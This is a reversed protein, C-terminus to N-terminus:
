ATAPVANSRATAAPAPPIAFAAGVSALAVRISVWRLGAGGGDSSGLSVNCTNLFGSRGSRGGAGGSGGRLGEYDDATQGAIGNRCDSSAGAGGAGGGGGFSSRAGGAGAGGAARGANGRDGERGDEGAEGPRGAQGRGGVLTSDTVLVQVVEHARVGFSSGAMAEADPELSGDPFSGGEVTVQDLTLRELGEADIGVSDQDVGVPPCATGESTSGGCVRLELGSLTLTARGRVDLATSAHVQIPTRRDEADRKWDRDFDDYFGGYVNVGAALGLTGDAQYPRAEPTKLYLDASQANARELADDLTRMPSALSGDNGDSGEDLDVFVARDPDALVLVRVVDTATTGLESDTVMVEFTLSTVEDPATLTQGLSSGLGEVPPGALQTWTTRLGGVDLTNRPTALLEFPANAAVVLDEGADVALDGMPNTCAAQEEADTIGDGDSDPTTPLSIVRVLTDGDLCDPGELDTPWGFVEEADDLGDGDTDPNLPDTFLESETRDSLGDLDSDTILMLHVVDGRRIEVDGATWAERLPHFVTSTDDVTHVALWYTRSAESGAVDGVQTLGFGAPLGELAVAGEAYELDLTGGLVEALTLAEDRGRDVAVRHRETPQRGGYDILVEATRARVDAAALGLDVGPDNGTLEISGAQISLERAHELVRAIEEASDTKYEFGFHVLNGPDAGRGLPPPTFAFDGHTLTGVAEPRSRNRPNVILATLDLNRLTFAVDGDNMLGVTVRITGGTPTITESRVEDYYASTERRNAEVTEESWHTSNVTTDTHEYGYGASVTGVTVAGNSRVKANVEATHQEEVTRVNAGGRTSTSVLEDENTESMGFAVEQGTTRQADLVIQPPGIQEMYLRPVDAILPHFRVHFAGGRDWNDVEAKDDFGDGDTDAVGPHTGLELETCDDLGDGDRDAASECDLGVFGGETADGCAILGLLLTIAGVRLTYSHTDRQM